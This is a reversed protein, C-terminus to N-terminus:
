VRPALGFKIYTSNLDFVIPSYHIQGISPVPKVAMGYTISKENPKRLLLARERRRSLASKNAYFTKFRCFYFHVSKSQCPM